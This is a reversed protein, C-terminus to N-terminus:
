TSSALQVASIKRKREKKCMFVQAQQSVFVTHQVPITSNIGNGQMVSSLLVSM